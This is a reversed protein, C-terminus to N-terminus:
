KQALLRTLAPPLLGTVQQLQTGDCMVDDDNGFVTDPGPSWLLYPGTTIPVEGPDIVGNYNIDGLRYSMVMWGNAATRANGTNTLNAPNGSPFGSNYPPSPAAGPGLYVANDDFYFVAPQQAPTPALSGIPAIYKPKVFGNPSSSAAVNRTAPFYLIPSNNRDALVDEANNFVAKSINTPGAGPSYVVGGVQTGIRFRDPPLYPGKIPGTTGRIRFGPGDAGDGPNTQMVLQSGGDTIASTSIAPGPAVLAWCLLPAGIVTPLNPPPNRDIRPYDGFDAKYAELAQSIVLLDAAMSARNAQSYAHNVMPLLITALLVIMGIVVLLEILTFGRRRLHRM